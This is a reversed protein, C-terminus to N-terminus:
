FCYFLTNSISCKICKDVQIEFVIFYRTQFVANSANTWKTFTKFLIGNKKLAFDIFFQAYMITAANPLAVTRVEPGAKPYVEALNIEIVIQM